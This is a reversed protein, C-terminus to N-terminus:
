SHHQTKLQPLLQWLFLGAHKRGACFTSKPVAVSKAAKILSMTNPKDNQYFIPAGLSTM